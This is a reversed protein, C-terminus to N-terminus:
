PVAVAPAPRTLMPRLHYILAMLILTGYLRYSQLFNLHSRATVDVFHPMSGLCIYVFAMLALIRKDTVKNTFVVLLLVPVILYSLGMHHEYAVPSSIVIALVAAGFDMMRWLPGEGKRLWFAYTMTAIGLVLALVHVWVLPVLTTHTPDWTMNNGDHIFRYITGEWTHSTYFSEGRSSLFHMLDFYAAHVPWGFM